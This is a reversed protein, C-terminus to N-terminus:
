RSHTSSISLGSPTRNHGAGDPLGNSKQEREQRTKERVVLEVQENNSPRALAYFVNCHDLILIKRGPLRQEICYRDYSSPDLGFKELITKLVSTTREDNKIRVKKYLLDDKGAFQIKAIVSESETSNSLGTNTSITPSATASGYGQSTSGNSSTLLSSVSSSRSHNVRPTPMNKILQHQRLSNNSTISMKDLSTSSPSSRLSGNSIITSETNGGSANNSTGLSDLSVESPFRPVLARLPQGGYTKCFQEQPPCSDPAEKPEIRYSIDWSETDTYTRVNDFWAKFRPLSRLDTYANAASQFLKIQALVEFQKRHKEFHILKKAPSGDTKENNITNPYASDIYTLDSLYIGLYPVTGVVAPKSQDRSAKHRFKKGLTANIATNIDVHKATGETYEPLALRLEDLQKDLIARAQKKDACSGFVNKLEELISWHDETVHSWATNLRYICGSLLGNLIATLSSFSRLRRCEHAVDIWKEIVNARTQEDKEKLITAVVRNVISNFFEITKDVTSLSRNSNNPSRRSCSNTSISLCEYPLVRKLLDADVLTLQEAIITSSIELLNWPILYDFGKQYSLYNKKSNNNNNNNDIDSTQHDEENKLQELLTHSHIRVDEDPLQSMLHNLTSYYPPEVFDEKYTNLLCIIAARLSKLTKRRVDETMDLSAPLVTQYRTIITDILERTNTFTRYTSFLIHMHTTDLEGDDHTLYEILKELTGAKLQYIKITSYLLTGQDTTHTDGSTKSENHSADDLAHNSKHRVRKLFIKFIADDQQEEGILQPEQNTQEESYRMSNELVCLKKQSAPSSNNTMFKESSFYTPELQTYINQQSFSARITKNIFSGTKAALAIRRIPRRCLSM